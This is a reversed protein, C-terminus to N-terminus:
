SKDGKSIKPSETQAGLAENLAGSRFGKLDLSVFKYGLQCFHEHIAMRHELLWAMQDAPVEIRASDGHHRVRCVSLGLGLLFDEAREVQSLDKENVSQGHPIRSALCPSAPKDALILGYHRSLARVSAKDMKLDLYPSCVIAEKAAKLGPRYDSLDDMNVGYVVPWLHSDEANSDLRLESQLETLKEFLAQKCYYCRDGANAVYGEKLMEDTRVIRLPIQHRHAFDVAHHYERRALSSSDALVALMKLGHVKHAVYALLASDVGGSYAVVVPGLARLHQELDKARAVIDDMALETMLLESSKLVSRPNKAGM